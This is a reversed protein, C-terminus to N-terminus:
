GKNIIVKLQRVLVVRPDATGSQEADLARQARDASNGVWKMILAASGSPVPEVDENGKDEESQKPEEDEESPEPVVPADEVRYFIGNRLLELAMEDPVDQVDGEKEWFYQGVGHGGDTSGIKM